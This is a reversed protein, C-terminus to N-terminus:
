RYHEFVYFRLAWPLLAIDVAGITSGKYFTGSRSAAFSSLDERLTTM